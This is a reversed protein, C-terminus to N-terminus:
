ATAEVWSIDLATAAVLSFPLVTPGASSRWFHRPISAVVVGAVFCVILM